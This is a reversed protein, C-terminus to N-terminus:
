RRMREISKAAAEMRLRGPPNDSHIHITPPTYYNDHIHQEIWTLVHYGELNGEGLDHDLSIEDVQCKGLLDITEEVTKTRMWGIPAERVDDLFIKM